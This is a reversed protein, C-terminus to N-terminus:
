ELNMGEGIEELEGADGGYSKPVGKGLEGGLQNGYSLVHLKALTEKAVLLKMASFLWGM